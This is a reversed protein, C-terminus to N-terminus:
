WVVDFWHLSVEILQAPLRLKSCKCFIDFHLSCTSLIRLHRKCRGHAWANGSATSSSLYERSSRKQVDYLGTCDLLLSLCRCAAVIVHCNCSLSKCCVTIDVMCFWFMKEVCHCVCRCSMVSWHCQASQAAPRTTQITKRMVRAPRWYEYDHQKCNSAPVITNKLTAFAFVVHM